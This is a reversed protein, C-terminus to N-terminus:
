AEAFDRLCHRIEHTLPDERTYGKGVLGYVAEHLERSYPGEPTEEFGFGFGEGTLELQYVVKQLWDETVPRGMIGIALLIESERQSLAVQPM